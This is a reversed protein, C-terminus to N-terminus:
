WPMSISNKLLELYSNREKFPHSSGDDDDDDDDGGHVLDHKTQETM